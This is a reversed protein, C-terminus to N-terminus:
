RTRVHPFLPRVPRPQGLVVSACVSSVLSALWRLRTQSHKRAGARGSCWTRALVRPLPRAGFFPPLASSRLAVPCPSSYGDPAPHQPLLPFSPPLSGCSGTDPILLSLSLPFSRLAGQHSPKTRPLPSVLCAAFRLSRPLLPSETGTRPPCPSCAPAAEQQSPQYHHLHDVARQAHSAATFIARKDERLVEAM